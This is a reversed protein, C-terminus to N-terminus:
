ADFAMPLMTGLIVMFKSITLWPVGPCRLTALGPRIGVKAQRFREDIAIFDDLMLAPKVSM